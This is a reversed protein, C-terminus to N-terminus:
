SAEKVEKALVVVKNNHVEVFGGGALNYTASATEGGKLTLQGDQLTSLLPAHNAMIGLYGDGGPVVISEVQGEFVVRDPSVIQLEFQAM